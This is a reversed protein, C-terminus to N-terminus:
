YLTDRIEGLPAVGGLDIGDELHDVRYRADRHQVVLDVGVMITGDDGEGARRIRYGFRSYASNPAGDIQNIEVTVRAHMGPDPGDVDHREHGHFAHGQLIADPESLSNALLDPPAM